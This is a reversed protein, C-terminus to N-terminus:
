RTGSSKMVPYVSSSMSRSPSSPLPWSTSRFGNVGSARASRARRSTDGQGRAFRPPPPGHGPMTGKPQEDRPPLRPTHWRNRRHRPRHMGYTAGVQLNVAAIRARLRNRAPNEPRPTPSRLRHPDAADYMTLPVSLEVRRRERHSARVIQPPRQRERLAGQRARQVREGAQGGSSIASWTRHCTYECEAVSKREGSKTVRLAAFPVMETGGPVGSAFSREARSCLRDRPCM